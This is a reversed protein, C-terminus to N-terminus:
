APLPRTSSHGNYKYLMDSPATGHQGTTDNVTVLTGGHDMHESYYKADGEPIGHDELAGAIGGGAAGVAAGTLAAGGVAAEAIAGAAVFPGVGPIALAAVGLLTGIGAGAAAKSAMSAAKEALEDETAETLHGDHDKGIVSIDKESFGAARLDRIANEAHAHDNFMAHHMTATM